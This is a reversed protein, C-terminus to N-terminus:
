SHYDKTLLFYLWFIVVILLVQLVAELTPPM